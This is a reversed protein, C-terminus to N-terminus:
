RPSFAGLIRLPWGVNRCFALGERLLAWERHWVRGLIIRLYYKQVVFNHRVLQWRLRAPAHAYYRCINVRHLEWYTQWRQWEFQQSLRPQNRTRSTFDLFVLPERVYAVDYHMCIRMWMDVDSIDGFAPDFPLLRDYAARRVMAIGWMPIRSQNLLCKELFVRGPTLPATNCQRLNAILQTKDLDKYARMDSFAFGASPYTDMAREWKELMTPDLEDADHLNLVYEGSTLGVAVNLNGPMNLNRQNRNYHFHRFRPRWKEIVRAPDDPSCDDSVIVEDPLRTQNALCQLTRDLLATRNYATICVSLKISM